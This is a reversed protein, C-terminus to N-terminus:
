KTNKDQKWDLYRFIRLDLHM